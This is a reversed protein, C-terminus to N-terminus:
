RLEWGVRTGTGAGMFHVLPVRQRRNLDKVTDHLIV